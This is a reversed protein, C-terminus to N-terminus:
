RLVTGTWERIWEDRGAGIKAPSLTYPNEPFDSFQEFVKPLATGERAPFVFMQLPMDAQFQESLMFDVFKRAAARHETGALVGAFEVQRFCAGTMTGITAEDTPPEAFYVSAPPSSAYSVVLPRTGGAGGGSFEDYFAQDWGDVVRVDNARLREWYQQWHKPGYEAVTAVLFALGTTSTSPDEVVLRGKYAPKTLDELTKPVKVAHSQFWAKDYNICVDAYDIPTVRSKPDLRLTEPVTDLAPSRYREFIGEDLARTLFTNDVGYLVDGVPNDKTLIAQNVITGGDGGQLIEVEIGTRATFADLVDKSVAFSDHTVLRITEGNTKGRTTSAGIPTVAVGVALATAVAVAISVLVRSRM